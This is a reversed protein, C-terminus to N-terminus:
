RCIRGDLLNEAQRGLGQGRSCGSCPHMPPAIDVGIGDDEIFPIIPQGPVKLSYGKDVTIKSSNSPTKIHKYM